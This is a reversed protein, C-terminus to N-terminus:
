NGSDQSQDSQDASAVPAATWATREVSSTSYGNAMLSIRISLLPGTNAAHVLITSDAEKGTVLRPFSYSTITLASFFCDMLEIWDDNTPMRWSEGLKVHAVDDESDLTVKNDVAGYAIDTCYKNQTVDSGSCWRYSAWKVSLGLNVAEVEGMEEEEQVDIFRYAKQVPQMDLERTYGFASLRFARRCDLCAFHECIIPDFEQQTHGFIQYWGPLEAADKVMEDVDNWV